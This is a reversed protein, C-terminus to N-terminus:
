SFGFPDIWGTPNPAYQFVNSGGMLGSRACSEGQAEPLRAGCTQKDKSM